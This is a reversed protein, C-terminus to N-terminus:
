GNRAKWVFVHNNAGKLIHILPGVNVFTQILQEEGWKDARLPMQLIM